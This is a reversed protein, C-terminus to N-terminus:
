DFDIDIDMDLEVDMIGDPYIPDNRRYNNSHYHHHHHRGDDNQQSSNNRITPTSTSVGPVPPSALRTNTWQTSSGSNSPGAGTTTDEVLNEEVLDEVDLTNDSNNGQQILQDLNQNLQQHQGQQRFLAALGNSVSNSNNTADEAAEETLSKRCIPCTAHLELWPCICADHYVHQCPLSRVPEGIQFDEWCVSCQLKSKVQDSTVPVVPIEIIREKPMPPPGSGDMQNLLQTVIADLGERGWAYDAPNGVIFMQNSGPVGGPGIGWSGQGTLNLVVDTILNEFSPRSLHTGGGVRTVRSRGIRHGPFQSAYRRRGTLRQRPNRGSTNSSSATPPSDMQGGVFTLFDTIERIEGLMNSLRQNQPFGRFGAEVDVDSLDDEQNVPIELEEIFGGSCHPCTYDSAVTDFEVSCKHCFFRTIPREEVAAEAM